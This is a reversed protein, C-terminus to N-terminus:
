PTGFFKVGQWRNRVQAQVFLDIRCRHAGTNPDSYFWLRPMLPAAGGSDANADALGRRFGQGTYPMILPASHAVVAEKKWMMKPRYTTSATGKFTVVAGNAPATACTAHATNVANDGTTAGPVPVIIAPFISVTAAGAGDAVADQTVVFQQLGFPRAAGIHPDYANVGAITFVEGAKVTGAAGIGAINLTQVLYGGATNGADSVASYNVNQAAGAVTGATRTGTTIVGLQNTAKVPIGDLMGSFGRRMARSGEDALSPNSDYIYTALNAKDRHSIVGTLGMDSEVSAEALLTRAEAFEVPTTLDTGWTGTTYNFSAAATNFIHSDIKAAMTAIGSTLARARKASAMDVVSEIDSAGLSLGFIRNLSFTQSGFVTDQVGGSLDQVNGTTETIVYDPEVQESVVYGNRDNMEASHVEWDILESAALNNRLVSMITKLILRSQPVTVAM